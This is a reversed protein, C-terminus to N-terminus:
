CSSNATKKAEATNSGEITTVPTHMATMGRPSSLPPRVDVRVGSKPLLRM